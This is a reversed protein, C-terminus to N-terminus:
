SINRESVACVMCVVLVQISSISSSVRWALWNVCTCALEALFHVKEGSMKILVVSELEAYLEVLVPFIYAKGVLQVVKHFLVAYVLVDTANVIFM